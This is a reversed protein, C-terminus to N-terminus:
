DSINLVIDNSTQLAWSEIEPNIGEETEDDDVTPTGTLDIVRGTIPEFDFEAEFGPLDYHADLIPKINVGNNAPFSYNTM